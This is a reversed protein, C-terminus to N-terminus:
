LAITSCNDESMHITVQYKEPADLAVFVCASTDVNSRLTTKKKGRQFLIQVYLLFTNTDEQFAPNTDSREKQFLKHPGCVTMLIFIGCPCSYIHDFSSSVSSLCSLHDLYLLNVTHSPIMMSGYKHTRNLAKIM